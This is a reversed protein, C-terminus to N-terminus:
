SHCKNDLIAPNPNTWGLEVCKADPLAVYGTEEAMERIASAQLDQDSPDVVGGPFELTHDSIGIRYQRVMVINGGETIPIINCWDRSRLLYFRHDREDESSQCDRQIFKMFPSDIIIKESKCIWENKGMASAANLM